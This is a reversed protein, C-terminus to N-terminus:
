SALQPFVIDGRGLKAVSCVHAGAGGSFRAQPSHSPFYASLQFITPVLFMYWLEKIKIKFKMHLFDM